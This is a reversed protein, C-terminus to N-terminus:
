EKVFRKTGVQSGDNFRIMYVGKSLGSIDLTSYFNLSEKQIMSSYVVQGTSNIITLTLEKATSVNDFRIGIQDKAPNPAITIAQALATKTEASLVVDKRLIDYQVLADKAAARIVDLSKGGILAFAIQVSDGSALNYPGAAISHSVDTGEGDVGADIISEASSISQFKEADTFGDYIGFPTSPDEQNNAFATYNVGKDTTLLQIAGYLENNSDHVYGVKLDSLWNARNKRSDLVDWDAFLGSYFNALNATGKNFITYEVIIYDAHPAASQAWVEQRVRLKMSAVGGNSDDWEGSWRWVGKEDSSRKTNLLIPKIKKFDDDFIAQRNRIVGRGANVLRDPRVAMIPCMEWLLNKDNVIFGDGFKRDDYHHGITAMHGMSTNINNKNIVTHLPNIVLPYYEFDRFKDQEYVVKIMITDYTRATKKLFFKFPTEKSNKISGGKILGVEATAQILRLQPDSSEISIRFDEKTDFLINEFDAYFYATDGAFADDQIGNSFYARKLSIGPLKETMARTVNLRGNGIKDEYLTNRGTTINDTSVTLMKAIQRPTFDPYVAMLLAAAGATIPCSFSTGDINSYGGVSTHRTTYISAGPAAIDVFTGFNSFNVVRDINDTAAVALVNKLAAPYKLDDKGDNGAAAVVLCGKDIVAYDIINQMAPSYFRGGFSCNIINVGKDALYIIGSYGNFIAFGGKDQSHKTSMFMTKFGVGTVGINNDTDAAACGAVAIGHDEGTDGPVQPDNDQIPSSGDNGVFDWGKFNDVYGDKDDDIGNVPDNYNFKYKKILDPHAFDMGSDVIGIVINSDGKSIDWAQEARISRIFYQQRLEPDNPTYSIRYVFKPTAYEIKGTAYLDNIVNEINAAKDCVLEYILSLDVTPKGGAFRQQKFSQMNFAHATPVSEHRLTLEKLDSGTELCAAHEPKLKFLIKGAEYEDPRIDSPMRFYKVSSKGPNIQAFIVFSSSFFLALLMLSSKLLPRNM